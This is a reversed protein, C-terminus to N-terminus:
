YKVNSQSKIFSVLNTYKELEATYRIYIIWKLFFFKDLQSDSCSPIPYSVCWPSYNVPILGISYLNFRKFYTTLKKHNNLDSIIVFDLHQLFINFLSTHTLEGHPIDKFIFFPQVYKFVKYNKINYQWNFILSEEIFFKNSLLQVSTRLYFLNFLLDYSDVWRKFYRSASILSNARIDFTPSIFMTRFDRHAAYHHNGKPRTLSWTQLFLNWLSTGKHIKIKTGLRLLKPAPNRNPLTFNTTQVKFFKKKHSWGFNRLELNYILGWMLSWNQLDLCSLVRWCYFM